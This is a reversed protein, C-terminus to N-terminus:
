LCMVTYLVTTGHQSNSLRTTGFATSTPRWGIEKRVTNVNEARFPVLHENRMPQVSLKSFFGSCLHRSSLVILAPQSRELWETM